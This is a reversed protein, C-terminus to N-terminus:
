AHIEYVSPKLVAIFPLQRYKEAYDMGYGVIWKNPCSFGLWDLSLGEVALRAPKQVLVCSRLSKLNRAKLLKILYSLTLGTDVIDEVILVDKGELSSRVDLMIKVQGTSTTGKGYSSISMTEIRVDVDTLRKSLDNLLMLSGNLIGLLVLEKGRYAANIGAAMEDVKKEIDQRSYLIGEFDDHGLYAEAESGAIKSIEGDGM